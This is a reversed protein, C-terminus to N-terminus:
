PKPHLTEPNPSLTYPKPNLAEPKPNLTSYLRFMGSDSAAFDTSDLPWTSTIDERLSRGLVVERLFAIMNIAHRQTNWTALEKIHIESASILGSQSGNEVLVVM